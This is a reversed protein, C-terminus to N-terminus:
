NLCKGAVTRLHSCPLAEEPLMKASSFMFSFFRSATKNYIAGVEGYRIFAQYM